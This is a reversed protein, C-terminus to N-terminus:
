ELGSLLSTSCATRSHPGHGEHQATSCLRCLKHLRCRHLLTRLNHLALCHQLAQLTELGLRVSWASARRLSLLLECHRALEAPRSRHIVRAPVYHLLLDEDIPEGLEDLVKARWLQGHPGERFEKRLSHLDINSFTIVGDVDGYREWDEHLKDKGVTKVYRRQLLCFRLCVTSCCSRVLM